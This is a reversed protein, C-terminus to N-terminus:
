TIPIWLYVTNQKDALRKDTMLLLKVVEGAEAVILKECRGRNLGDRKKYHITGNSVIINRQFLLHNFRYTRKYM